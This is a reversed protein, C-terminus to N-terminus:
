FWEVFVKGIKKKNIKRVMGLGVIDGLYVRKKDVRIDYREFAAAFTTCWKIGGVGLM